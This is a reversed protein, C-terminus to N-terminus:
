KNMLEFHHTIGEAENKESPMLDRLEPLSTDKASSGTATLILMAINYDHPGCSIVCSM